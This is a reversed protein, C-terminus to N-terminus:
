PNCNSFIKQLFLNQELNHLLFSSNKEIESIPLSYSFILNDDNFIKSSTYIWEYNLKPNFRLKQFFGHCSSKDNRGIFNVLSKRFLFATGPEFRSIMFELGGELVEEVTKEFRRQAWSNFYCLVLDEARNFHLMGPLLEGVEPITYKEQVLDKEFTFLSVQNDLLIEKETRYKKM